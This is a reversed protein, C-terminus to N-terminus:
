TSSGVKSKLVVFTIQSGASFANRIPSIFSLTDLKSTIFEIWGALSDEYTHSGIGATFESVLNADKINILGNMDADALVEQAPTLGSPLGAGINSAATQILAVDRSDVSGDDNVDPYHQTVDPLMFDVGDILTLGNLFVFLIDKNPNYEAIGIPYQRNSEQTSTIVYSNQYKEIYTDVILTETLSNYWENFENAKQEMFYQWQLFLTSTDVQKILGTVYPCYSTGRLDEIMIQTIKTIGPEITIKALALYKINETNTPMEGKSIYISMNRFAENLNLKIVVYDTRTEEDPNDVSLNLISSNKIWHCDILARGSGVSVSMNNNDATVVLKNGISEYVGDSVLGEFYHSMDEANYTRDNNISDFFGYTISM